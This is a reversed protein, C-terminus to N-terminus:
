NNIIAQQGIKSRDKETSDALQRCKAAERALEIVERIRTIYEQKTLNDKEMDQNIAVALAEALQGLIEGRWQRIGPELRSFISVYNRSLEIKRGVQEMNNSYLALLVRKVKMCLMHDEHLETQLEALLDEWSQTHQTPSFTELYHHLRTVIKMVTTESLRRGCGGCGWETHLHSSLPLVTGKCKRCVVGSAMTGLETPDSCRACMCTFMWYEELEQRRIMSAQGSGRYMTTLEEGQKILKSARVVMEGRETQYDTTNSVCSHNLVAYVPCVAHGVARNNGARWVVSNTRIIGVIKEVVDVNEDANWHNKIFPILDNEVSRWTKEKRREMLHDMLRLVKEEEEKNDRISHLMRIVGVAAFVDVGECHDKSGQQCEVRLAHDEECGAGCLPLGCHHCPHAPVPLCLGCQVCTGPLPGVCVPQDTLVVEGPQIDRVAVM